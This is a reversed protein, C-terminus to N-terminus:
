IHPNNNTKRYESPLVGFNKLFQKRFNSINNFGSNYAAESVQYGQLILEAAKELRMKNILENASM